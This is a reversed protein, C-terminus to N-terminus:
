SGSTYLNDLACVSNYNALWVMIEYEAKGSSSSSTFIDYAVDAVISGSYSYSWKWISQKRTLFAELLSSMPDSRVNMTGIASLQRNAGSNQQM